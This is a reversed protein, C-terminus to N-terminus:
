SRLLLPVRRPSPAVCMMIVLLDRLGAEEMLYRHVEVGTVGGMKFIRLLSCPTLTVCVSRRVDIHAVARVMYDLFLLKYDGRKLEEIGQRWNLAAPFVTSTLTLSRSTPSPHKPSRLPAGYSVHCGFQSLHNTIQRCVHENDDIVYIPFGALSM